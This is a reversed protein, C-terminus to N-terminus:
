KNLTLLSFMRENLSTQEFNVIFVGCGRRRRWEPKKKQWSQVYEVYQEPTEM